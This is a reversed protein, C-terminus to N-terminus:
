PPLFELAQQEKSKPLNVVFLGQWVDCVWKLAGGVGCAYVGDRWLRLHVLM